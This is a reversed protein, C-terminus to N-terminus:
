RVEFDFYTRPFPEQRLTFHWWEMKYPKFGHKMMATHLLKRNAKQKPTIRDSKYWSVPGFFDFPSGMDLEKGTKLDVATLDVTSGRSHGSRRAIYGARFLDRKDIGPYYAQKTRTDQQDKSWRFFHRVARKPRYADFIKLGLGQKGLEQQVKQLAKAAKESLIARSASYGDIRQGVFNNGNYYRLEVKISPILDKVYVFGNPLDSAM